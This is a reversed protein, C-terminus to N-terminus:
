KVYSIIQNISGTLKRYDEQTFVVRGAKFTTSDEFRFKHHLESKEIPIMKKVEIMLMEILQSKMVEDSKEDGMSEITHNDLQYEARMQISSNLNISIENIIQNLYDEHKM